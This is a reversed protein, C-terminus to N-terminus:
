LTIKDILDVIFLVLMATMLLWSLWLISTLYRDVQQLFTDASKKDTTIICDAHASFCFYKLCDFKTYCFILMSSLINLLFGAYRGYRNIHDIASEVDDVFELTCAM